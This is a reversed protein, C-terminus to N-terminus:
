LSFNLLNEGGSNGFGYGGPFAGGFGYGNQIKRENKALKNEVARPMGEMYARQMHRLDSLLEEGDQSIDERLLRNPSLPPTESPKNTNSTDANTDKQKSLCNQCIEDGDWINRLRKSNWGLGDDEEEGDWNDSTTGKNNGTIGCQSCRGEQMGDYKWVVETLTSHPRSIESPRPQNRCYRPDSVRTCATEYNGCSISSIPTANDSNYKIQMYAAEGDGNEIKAAGEDTQCAKDNQHINYKLVFETEHPREATDLEEEKYERYKKSQGLEMELVMAGSDSRKYDVKDLSGSINFTTGDPYKGDAPNEPKDMVPKFHSSESTLLDEKEVPLNPKVSVSFLSFNTRLYPNFVAVSAQTNPGKPAIERFCSEEKNHNIKTLSATIQRSLKEEDGIAGFQVPQVQFQEDSWRYGLLGPREGEREFLKNIENEVGECANGQRRRNDNDGNSWNNAIPITSFQINIATEHDDADLESNPVDDLTTSRDISWISSLVNMGYPLFGRKMSDRTNKMNMIEVIKDQRDASNVNDQPPEPSDLLLRINVPLDEYMNVDEENTTNLDVKAIELCREIQKESQEKNTKLANSGLKKPSQKSKKVSSPGQDDFFERPPFSWTRELYPSLKPNDERSYSEESSMKGYFRKPGTFSGIIGGMGGASCTSKEGTVIAEAAQQHARARGLPPFAAYYREALERPTVRKSGIPQQVPRPTSSPSSSLSFRFSSEAADNTEKLKLWLEEVLSEVECNQDSASMLCEVAASRKLQEADAQSLRWWDASVKRCRKRNSAGRVEKRLHDLHLDGDDDPCVIDVTHTRLLSLIYRAYLVSEIGRAELQEELWDTVSSPISHVAQPYKM